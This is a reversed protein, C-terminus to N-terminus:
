QKLLDPRLRPYDCVKCIESTRQIADVGETEERVRQLAYRAGAKWAASNNDSSPGQVESELRDLIDHIMRATEKIHSVAGVSGSFHVNCTKKACRAIVPADLYQSKRSM